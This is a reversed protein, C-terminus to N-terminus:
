NVLLPSAPAAILKGRLPTLAAATKRQSCHFRQNKM